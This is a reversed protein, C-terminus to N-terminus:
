SVHEAAGAQVLGQMSTGGLHNTGHAALLELVPLPVGRGVLGGLSEEMELELNRLRLALALLRNAGTPCGSVLVSTLPPGASPGM